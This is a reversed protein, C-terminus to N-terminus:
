KTWKRRHRIQHLPLDPEDPFTGPLAKLLHDPTPLSMAHSVGQSPTTERQSEADHTEEQTAKQSADDQTAQNAKDEQAPQQFDEQTETNDM